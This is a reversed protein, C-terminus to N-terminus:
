DFSYGTFYIQKPEGGDYLVVFRCHGRKIDERFSHSKEIDEWTPKESRFHRQLEAPSFPAACCFDPEEAVQTIDLISRTGDEEAMELAEEPTAPGFEAGEFEGSEFVKARLKELANQIDTEYPVTYDYPEAGM